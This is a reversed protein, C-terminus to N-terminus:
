VVGCTEGKEDWLHFLEIKSFHILDEIFEICNEVVDYEDFSDKIFLLYKNLKCKMSVFYELDTLETLENEILGCLGEYCYKLKHLYSLDMEDIKDMTIPSMYKLEGYLTGIKSSLLDVYELELEKLIKKKDIDM